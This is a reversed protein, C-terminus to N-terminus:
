YEYLAVLPALINYITPNPTSDQPIFPLTVRPQVYSCILVDEEDVCLIKMQGKESLLSFIYIVLIWCKRELERTTASM